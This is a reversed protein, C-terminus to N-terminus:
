EWYLFTGIGEIELLKKMEIEALYRIGKHDGEPEDFSSLRLADRFLFFAVIEDGRSAAKKGLNFYCKNRSDRLRNTLSVYADHYPAVKKQVFEYRYNERHYSAYEELIFGVYNAAANAQKALARLEEESQDELNKALLESSLRLVEKPKVLGEVGWRKQLEVRATEIDEPPAAEQSPEQLLGLPLLLFALMYSSRSM